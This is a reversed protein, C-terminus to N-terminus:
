PSPPTTSTNFTIKYAGQNGSGYPTVKIYYEQGNTLTQQTYKDSFTQRINAPEGTPNGNNNYLQVYLWSATVFNVHIYYQTNATATFKFWQEDNQTPINGDTWTDAILTKIETGPTIPLTNFAIKYTGGSNSYSSYPTVKIYYEQEPTLTQKTYKTFNYLETKGGLPDGYGNNSNYLQVYLDNLTGFNVHIYQTADTATFKFWQEGDSSPINGDKWADATLEIADTPLKITTPETASNSFAIKYTGTLNLGHALPWVEIYYEQGINLTYSIYNKSSTLLDNTIGNAKGDNNYLQILLTNSFSLTGFRAHIYQTEATATFKYWHKNVNATFINDAWVNLTLETATPNFEEEELPPILFCGTFLTLVAFLVILIKKM